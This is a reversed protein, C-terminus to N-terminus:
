WGGCSPHGPHNGAGLCVNKTTLSTTPAEIDTNLALVLNRSFTAHLPIPSNGRRRIPEPSTMGGRVIRNM